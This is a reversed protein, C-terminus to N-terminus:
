RASAGIGARSAGPEPPMESSMDVRTEASASARAAAPLAQRGPTWWGAIAAGVALATGAAMAPRFGDSFTRASGYGGSAAFVASLIAVGFTTGLQRLTNFVGSAAGVSAPPVAGLVAYQAAPMAASIGCSGLVLPPVLAPYSLGPGVLLTLWGMAVAVLALGGVLLTRVGVRPVLAGALPGVVVLTLTWPILRLGTGLPSYGLAAQLYQTLLFTVGVTTAYLLFGSANGGAFAPIRFFGMPLMPAAARSEWVVFGVALAAGSVLAGVTEASSWGVANGRVLGWVLGFAAGTVLALGAPDLRRAPGTSEAMRLRSLPALVLGIPVNVWFIWHWDLGQTIAGGVVPGGVTGLGTVSSFLGLARARQRGPFAVGLLAMAHPMILAAGVGQVARAAILDGTDPALACAVSAVTFIVVGSVFMRRRGLRDGLASAPLLLVAFSLTFATITWELEVMSAGLDLRIRDLATTVVLMDLVVMVSAASALALTWRQATTMPPKTDETRVRLGGTEEPPKGAFGGRTCVPPARPIRRAGAPGGGPGSTISM